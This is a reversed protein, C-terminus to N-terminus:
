GALAHLTKPHEAPGHEIAPRSLNRMAETRTLGPPRGQQRGQGAAAQLLAEPLLVGGAHHGQCCGALGAFPQRFLRLLFRCLRGGRTAACAAPTPACPACSPPPPCSCACGAGRSSGAILTILGHRNGHPWGTAVMRHPCALRTTVGHCAARESHAGAQGGASRPVFLPLLRRLLLHRRHLAVRPHFTRAAAAGAPRSPRGHAGGGEKADAVCAMAAGPARPCSTLQGRAWQQRAYSAPTHKHRAKAQVRHRADRVGACRGL